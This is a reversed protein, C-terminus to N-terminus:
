VEKIPIEENKITLNDNVPNPFISITQRKINNIRTSNYKYNSTNITWHNTSNNSYDKSFM